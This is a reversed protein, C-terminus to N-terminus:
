VGLRGVLIIGVLISQSLSESFNGIPRPIGGRLILIISSDVGRFGMINTRLNATVRTAAEGDKKGCARLQRRTTGSGPLATGRYVYSTCIYIYIYLICMFVHIYIYIYMIDYLTHIYIYICM